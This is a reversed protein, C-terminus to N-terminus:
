NFIEVEAEYDELESTFTPIKDEAFALADEENEAEVVVWHRFTMAVEYKIKM